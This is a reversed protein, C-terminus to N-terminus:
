VGNIEALALEQDKVAGNVVLAASVLALNKVIYQGELTLGLPFQTFCAEPQILLPLMTGCMHVLMMGVGFKVLPRYVFCLGIAVEWWGLVCLGTTKPLFFITRSVFEGLPCLACVKLLGFWVFITALSGRLLLVHIPRM